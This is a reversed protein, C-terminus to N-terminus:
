QTLLLSATILNKSLDEIRMNNNMAMNRLLAYAEDESIGKSCMLIGKARDINKRGDLKSEAKDLKKKLSQCKNFRAKAAEIIYSIRHSEIGDVIFASAGNTITESILGSDSEDSFITIPTPTTAQIYKVIDTIEPRAKKYYFVLIDPELFKISEHIKGIHIECLTVKYDNEILSTKLKKLSKTDEFVLLVKDTM